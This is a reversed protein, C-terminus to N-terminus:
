AGSLLQAPEAAYFIPGRPPRVRTVNGYYKNTIKNIIKDRGVVDGGTNITGSNDIGGSQGSM